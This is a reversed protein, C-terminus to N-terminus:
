VFVVFLLVILDIGGNNSTRAWGWGVSHTCRFASLRKKTTENVKCLKEVRSRSMSEGLGQM